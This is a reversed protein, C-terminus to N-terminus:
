RRGRSVFYGSKDLRQRLDAVTTLGGIRREKKDNLLDISLGCPELVGLASALQPPLRELAQADEVYVYM